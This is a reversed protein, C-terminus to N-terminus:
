IEIKEKEDDEKLSKMEMKEKKVDIGKEKKFEAVLFNVL